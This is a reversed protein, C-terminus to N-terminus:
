AQPRWAELNLSMLRGDAKRLHPLYAQSFDDVHAHETRRWDYRQIRVFGAASLAMTLWAEDFACHHFNLPHDQGGYLLGHLGELSKTEQYWACIASFDPVALRLVGGPSLVSRWDGLVRPIAERHFHELIHSAYVAEAVGAGFAEVLHAASVIHDIHAHPMLDVHVWGAIYRPGCGIHLKM